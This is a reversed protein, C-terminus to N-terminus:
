PEEIPGPLVLAGQFATGATESRLVVVLYAGYPVSYVAVVEELDAPGEDAGRLDRPSFAEDGAPQIWLEGDEAWVDVSRGGPWARWVVGDQDEELTADHCRGLRQVLVVDNIAPLAEQLSIIDDELLWEGSLLDVAIVSMVRSGDAAADPDVMVDVDVDHDVDPESRVELAEDLVWYLVRGNVSFGLCERSPRLEENAPDGDDEAVAELLSAQEWGALAAM